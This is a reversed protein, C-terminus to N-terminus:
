KNITLVTSCRGGVVGFFRRDLTEIARSCPFMIAVKQRHTMM